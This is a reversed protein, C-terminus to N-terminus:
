KKRRCRDKCHRLTKNLATCFPLHSAQAIAEIWAYVDADFSVSRKVSRKVSKFVERVSM